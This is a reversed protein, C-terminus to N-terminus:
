ETFRTVFPSEQYFLPIRFEGQGLKARNVKGENAMQKKHSDRQKCDNVVKFHRILTAFDDRVAAEIDYIKILLDIVCKMRKMRGM